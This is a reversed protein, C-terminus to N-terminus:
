NLLLSLKKYNYYRTFFKSRKKAKKIKEFLQDKPTNLFDDLKRQFSSEDNSNYIFGNESNGIFEKPGNPCNSSIIPTGVFASEVMIFGPDEWLSSSIVCRAQSIYNYVNKKYGLIEVKSNLNAKSITKEYLDKLEGDGILIFKFDKLYHSNKSFFNLLFLHNKQKTFRGISLFYPKSIEKDLKKRKLLNIQKIDLIPDPILILQSQKFINKKVLLQKTEETPCIVYKIKKSAIKWLLFRLFNLKPLGSIRLILKTKFDNLLFMLIPISTILHIILYDPEDKKLVKKLPFYSFFFILLYLFRSNFFGKFKRKILIRNLILNIMKINESHHKDWEGFVNILVNQFNKEFKILSNLSNFVSKLTAVQPDIHPSWFYNKKM